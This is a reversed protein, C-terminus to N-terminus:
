RTGAAPGQQKSKNLALPFSYRTARQLCMKDNLEYAAIFSYKGVESTPIAIIHAVRSEKEQSTKLQVGLTIDGNDIRRLLLSQLEMGEHTAPVKVSFDAKGEHDLEKIVEYIEDPAVLIDKDEVNPCAYSTAWGKLPLM